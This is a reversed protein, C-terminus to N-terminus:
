VRNEAEHIRVVDGPPQHTASGQGHTSEVDRRPVHVEHHIFGTGVPKGLQQEVIEDLRHSGDLGPAGPPGAPGKGAGEHFPDTPDIFM